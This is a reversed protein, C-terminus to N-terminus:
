SVDKMAERAQRNAEHRDRRREVRRPLHGTCERCGCCINRGRFVLDIHCSTTSWPAQPDYRDLDCPGTSHDHRETFHDRWVDHFQKVRHPVHVHTRSM